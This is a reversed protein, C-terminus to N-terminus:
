QQAESIIAARVAKLPSDIPPIHLVTVCRSKKKGQALHHEWAYCIEAKPNNVVFVEVTGNWVVKSKYTETIPHSEIHRSDCGHTNKIAEQLTEIHNM